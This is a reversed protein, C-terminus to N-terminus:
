GFAAVRRGAVVGVGIEIRVAVVLRVRIVLLTEAITSSEALVLYEVEGGAGAEVVRRRILGIGYSVGEIVGVGRVVMEVVQPEAFDIAVKLDVVEAIAAGASVGHLQLHLHGGM